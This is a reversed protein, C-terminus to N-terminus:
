RRVLREEPTSWQSLMCVGAYSTQVAAVATCSSQTCVHFGGAEALVHLRSGILIADSVITAAEEIALAAPYIVPALLLFLLHARAFDKSPPDAATVSLICGSLFRGM